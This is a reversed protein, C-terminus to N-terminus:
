NTCTIHFFASVACRQSEMCYIQKEHAFYDARSKKLSVNSRRFTVSIPKDIKLDFFYKSRKLRPNRKKVQKKTM